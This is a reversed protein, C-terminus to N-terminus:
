GPSARATTVNTDSTRATPGSGTSDTHRRFHVRVRRHDDILALQNSVREILQGASDLNYWRAFLVSSTTM